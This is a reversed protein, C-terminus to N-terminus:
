ADVAADSVCSSCATYSACNDSSTEMPLATTGTAPCGAFGINLECFEEETIGLRCSECSALLARCCDNEEEPCGDFGPNAACFEEETMGVKCSECTATVAQCCQVPCGAFGPNAACFEEETM